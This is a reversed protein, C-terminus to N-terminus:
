HVSDARFPVDRRPPLPWLSPPSTSPVRSEPQGLISKKIGRSSGSTSGIGLTYQKFPRFVCRRDLTLLVPVGPRSTSAIPLEAGGGYAQLGRVLTPRMTSIVTTSARCPLLLSPLLLSANRSLDRSAIGGGGCYGSPQFKSYLSDYLAM